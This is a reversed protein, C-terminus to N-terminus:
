APRLIIRTVQPRCRFRIAEKGSLGRNVHLVTPPEHFTGMDYRRSYRSPVFLSGFVPVRIQGGHNHGSLMLRCGNRKAWGINDPTHSILLRFGDPCGALDPPPRFWPGEHGIVVLQEGRVEVSQWRNSVVHMSLAALRDRVADFDQWWDHNGLIAFAAVNWRLPGLVPEIWELYKRDDIVDGTLVLLDPVGATMCRRVVFEFYERGPTGYFHLDSLQLITLGDWARPLGPVALTLTTFDVRFLDMAALEAIRRYKGDGVPRRGLEKVVDVTETQEDRVVAPRPRILRWVTVAPFAVGGALLCVWAYAAPFRYSGDTWASRGLEILDIGVAAAFAPPGAVLLLGAALRIAKLFKRHFPFSYTVNLALMLLYGHGVCAILFLLLSAL